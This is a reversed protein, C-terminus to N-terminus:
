FNIEFNLYIYPEFIGNRAYEVWDQYNLAVHIQEVPTYQVGAIIASGDDALNWPIPNEPLTNSYVQDYRAFAEWKNNLILTSYVSYGFRNHDRYFKYNKQLVYEGGLRFHDRQYGIFVVFTMQPNEKTFVSFYSRFTMGSLPTLTLGIGTKYNNDFQPSNYGEGNSVILDASLLRSFDYKMGIGIDASPGFRYADMYSKFLYRYGWFNEQTKFQQMDFLGLWVIVKKSLYGAYANKFYTYRRILSYESIDDPSGIDLKVEAFFHQQFFRKYGFYARTVEFATTSNAHNLGYNFNSYIRASIKGQDTKQISDEGAAWISTFFLIIFLIQKKM